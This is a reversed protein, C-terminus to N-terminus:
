PLNDFMDADGREIKGWRDGGEWVNKEKNFEHMIDYEEEWLSRTVSIEKPKILISWDLPHNAKPGYVDILQQKAALVAERKRDVILLVEDHVHLVNRQGYREELQLLGYCLANRAAAQTVNEIALQKTFTKDLGNAKLITLRPKGENVLKNIRVLPERWCVTAPWPGCHVRVSPTRANFDDDIVLKLKSEKPASEAEAMRRLMREARLFRDQHKEGQRGVGVTAVETICRVLWEATMSFEPHAENFLRHINWAATAIVNSCGTKEIIVKMSRESPAPWKMDSVMQKLKDETVKSLPDSCVRLLVQAYGFASMCFGLGLVASKSVQRIPDKKGISQMTMSKWSNIYPDSFRDGGLSEDFMKFVARCDTLWGEVRYEVNSLDGRVFCKDDPLHFIQRVPKAISIDHKPINHINLGKGQAPSSFRMTHARAYGLEVDVEPVNQLNKSRRSHSLMKNARTTQRLLETIKPHKAQWVPSLKKLSTRPLTIGYKERIIKILRAGRVSRLVGPSNTDERNFVQKIEDNSLLPVLEHSTELVEVGQAIETDTLIVSGDAGIEEMAEVHAAADPDDRNLFVDKAALEAQKANHDLTIILSDLKGSDVLFYFQRVNHTLMAIRQELPDIRAIQRYYLEQDVVVDRGNYIKLEDLTYGGADLDIELKRKDKPFRLGEGLNFLGYGGPFEPWAAMSGEVTCWVWCPQPIGLMFRLVRIDFAANHAVFIYRPDQALQTLVDIISADEASFKGAQTLFVEPQETGIAVAISTLYSAKIYQRLTMSTLSIGAKEDMFTEVDVFVPILTSLPGATAGYKIVPADLRIIEEQKPYQLEAM